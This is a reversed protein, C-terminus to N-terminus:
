VSKFTYGIIQKDNEQWLQEIALDMEMGIRFPKEEVTKLPAFIRVGEPMDILGIYFPPQFRSAPLHSLTYSYLKGRRSLAVEEMNKNFCEFCFNAKPFYIQGCSSCKNALLADGEANERFIGERIPIRNSM